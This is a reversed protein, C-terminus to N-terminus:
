LQEALQKTREGANNKQAIAPFYLQRAEQQVEISSTRHVLKAMRVPLALHIAANSFGHKNGSPSAIACNAQWRRRSAFAGSRRMFAGFKAM